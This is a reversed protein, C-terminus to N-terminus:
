GGEKKAEGEREEGEKRREQEQQIYDIASILFRSVCVYIRESRRVCSAYPLFSLFPICNSWAEFESKKKGIGLEHAWVRSVLEWIEVSWQKHHWINFKVLLHVLSSPTGPVLCLDMACWLMCASKPLSSSPYPSEKRRSGDTARWWREMKEM